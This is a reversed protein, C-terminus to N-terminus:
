VKQIIYCRPNCPTCIYTGNAELCPLCASIPDEPVLEALSIDPVTPVILDPLLRVNAGYHPYCTKREPKNRPKEGVFKVRREKLPREDTSPVEPLVERDGTDDNHRVSRGSNKNSKKRHLTLGPILPFHILGNRMCNGMHPVNEKASSKKDNSRPNTKSTPPESKSSEDKVVLIGGSLSGATRKREDANGGPSFKGHKRIHPM